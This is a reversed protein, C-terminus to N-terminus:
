GVSSIKRGSCKMLRSPKSIRYQSTVVQSIMQLQNIKYMQYPLFHLGLGKLDDLISDITFLVYRQDGVFDEKEM